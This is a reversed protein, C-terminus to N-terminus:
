LVSGEVDTFVKTGILHKVCSGSTNQNNKLLLYIFAIKSTSFLM